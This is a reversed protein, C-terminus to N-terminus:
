FLCEYEINSVSKFWGSEYTLYKFSRYESGIRMRYITEVEGIKRSSVIKGLKKNNRIRTKEIIKYEIKNIDNMCKQYKLHIDMQEKFDVIISMCDKNIYTM